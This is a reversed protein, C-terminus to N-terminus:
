GFIELKHRDGLLYLNKALSIESNNKSFDKLDILFRNMSFHQFVKVSDWVDDNKQYAASFSNRYPLFLGNGKLEAYGVLWLEVRKQGACEFLAQHLWATKEAMWVQSQLILQEIESGAAKLAKLHNTKATHVPTKNLIIVNKRFDIGFESNRAFFGQAIKGAQGVLYRRNKDLQENKGPNDGIVILKIESQETFSDFDSNYVVPNEVPYEPTDKEAAAEQLPKLICSFRSWEECKKRFEDRFQCFAAWQKENMCAGKEHYNGSKRSFCRGRM